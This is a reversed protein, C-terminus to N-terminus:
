RLSMRVESKIDTVQVLRPPLYRNAKTTGTHKPEPIVTPEVAYFWRPADGVGGISIWQRLRGVGCIGEVFTMLGALSVGGGGLRKLRVGLGVLWCWACNKSLGGGGCVGM